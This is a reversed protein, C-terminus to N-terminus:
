VFIKVHNVANRLKPIALENMKEFFCHKHVFPTGGNANVCTDHESKTYLYFTAYAVITFIPRHTTLYNEIFRNIDIIANNNGHGIIIQPNCAICITNMKTRRKPNNRNIKMNEIEDCTQSFYINEIGINSFNEKIDRILLANDHYIIDHLYVNEINFNNNILQQCINLENNANGAYLFIIDITKNNINTNASTILQNIAEEM